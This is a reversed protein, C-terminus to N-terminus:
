HMQLAHFYTISNDECYEEWTKNLPYSITSVDFNLMDDKFTLWNNKNAAVSHNTIEVIQEIKHDLYKQLITSDDFSIFTDELVVNTGDYTPWKKNQKVLLFDSDSIEKITYNSKKEGFNNEDSDNEFIRFIEGSEIFYLKAM